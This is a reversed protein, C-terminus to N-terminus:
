TQPWASTWCYKTFLRRTDAPVTSSLTEAAASSPKARPRNRKLPRRSSNRSPSLVITIGKGAIMSGSNTAVLSIPRM